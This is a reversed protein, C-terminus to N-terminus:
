RSEFGQLEARQGAMADIGQVHCGSVLVSVHVIAQLEPPGNPAM